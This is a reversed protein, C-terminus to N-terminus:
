RAKKMNRSHLAIAEEVDDFYTVEGDELVAGANCLNRV